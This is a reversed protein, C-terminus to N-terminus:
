DKNLSALKFFNMGSFTMALRTKAVFCATKHQQWWIQQAASAIVTGRRM